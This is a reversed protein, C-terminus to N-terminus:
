GDGVQRAKLIPNSGMQGRNKGKFKKAVIKQGECKDEEFRQGKNQGTYVDKCSIQGVKQGDGVQRAKLRPRSRM